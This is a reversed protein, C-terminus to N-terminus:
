RGDRKMELRQVSKGLAAPGANSDLRWGVNTSELLSEEILREARLKM